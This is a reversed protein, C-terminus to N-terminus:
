DFEDIPLDTTGDFSPPIPPDDEGENNNNEDGVPPNEGGTPNESEDEKTCSTLALTSILAIILVAYLLKKVMRVM